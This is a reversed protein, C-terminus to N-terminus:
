KHIVKSISPSLCVASDTVILILLPKSQKSNGIVFKNLIERKLKTGMRTVGGYSHRDLYEKSKGTWNNRGGGRNMFRMALIGSENAMLYIETIHDIFNILIKKREGNGERIMSDSDDIWSYALCV